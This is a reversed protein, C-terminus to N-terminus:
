SAEGASDVLPTLTLQYGALHALAATNALNPWRTQEITGNITHWNLGTTAAMQRISQHSQDLTHAIQTRIHHANQHPTMRRTRPTNTTTM